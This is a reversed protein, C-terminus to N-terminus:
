LGGRGSKDRVRGLITIHEDVVDPTVEENQPIHDPNDSRLILGGDLRKFIRKIRLEDGYRIAYVKGGVVDTEAMNVLVTDGDFLLSEMSDGHVKFRRTNEPKIGEKKFWELRYTAPVSDEIEEFEASRGPGASFRVQSERVQILSDHLEDDFDLAQVAKSHDDLWVAQVDIVESEKKPGTGDVLWRVRYGSVQSIRQAVAAKLNKTKGTLWFTVSAATVGVREAFVGKQLGTSAIVEAIRESLTSM